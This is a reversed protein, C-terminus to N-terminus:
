ANKNCKRAKERSQVCLRLPDYINPLKRYNRLTNKSSKSLTSVEAHDTPKKERKETTDNLSWKIDKRPLFVTSDLLKNELITNMGRKMDEKVGAQFLSLNVDKRSTRDYSIDTASLLGKGKFDKLKTEYYHKEFTYKKESLMKETKLRGLEDRLPKEWRLRSFKQLKRDKRITETTGSIETQDDTSIIHKSYPWTM